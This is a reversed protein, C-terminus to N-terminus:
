ATVFWHTGFYAERTMLLTSCMKKGMGRTVPPYESVGLVSRLKGLLLIYNSITVTGHPFIQEPHKPDKDKCFYSLQISKILTLSMEFGIGTGNKQRKYMYWNFFKKSLLM